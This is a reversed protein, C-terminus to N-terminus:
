QLTPCHLSHMLALPYPTPHVQHIPGHFKGYSAWLRVMFLPDKQWKEVEEQFTEFEGCTVDFDLLGCAMLHFLGPPQLPPMLAPKPYEMKVSSRAASATKVYFAQRDKRLAMAVDQSGSSAPMPTAPAGPSHVPKHPAPTAPPLIVAMEPSPSRTQIPTVRIPHARARRHDASTNAPRSRKPPNPSHRDGGVHQPHKAHVDKFQKSSFFVRHGESSQAHTRKKPRTPVELDDDGDDDLDVYAAADPPAPPQRAQRQARPKAAPRSEGAPAACAVLAELTPVMFHRVQLKAGPPPYTVDRLEPNLDIWISDHQLSEWVSGDGRQLALKLDKGQKANKLNPYVPLDWKSGTGDVPGRPCGVVRHDTLRLKSPFSAKCYVCLWDDRAKQVDRSRNRTCELKLEIYVRRRVRQEVWGASDRNVYYIVEDDGPLPAQKKPEMEQLCCHLDIAFFLAIQPPLMFPPCHTVPVEATHRLKRDDDCKRGGVPPFQGVAMAVLPLHM